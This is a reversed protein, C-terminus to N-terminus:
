AKRNLNTSFDYVLIVVSVVSAVVLSRDLNEIATNEDPGMTMSSFSCFPIPAGRRREDLARRTVRFPTSKAHREGPFSRHPVKARRDPLRCASFEKKKEKRSAEGEEKRKEKKKKKKKQCREIRQLSEFTHERRVRPELTEFLASRYIKKGNTVDNSENIRYRNEIADWLIKRSSRRTRM